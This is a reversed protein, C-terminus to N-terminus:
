GSSGVIELFEDTSEEWAEIIADDNTRDWPEIEDAAELNSVLRSVGTEFPITYEFDLDRRAKANDFVTTYQLHGELLDTRDPVAAALVDTPICVLDPEPAELAAAVRRHYQKWTMTEASTVHYAEGYARENGVAAVFARAVDDRHCPGWLSTGDGHVIVPKGRRIRDIYYTGSGLTHLLPGSDGYTSWPRIITTEFDRDSAAIFVDEVAAKNAAYETLPQADVESERTASETAPMRATPRRYVDVTSCVIYQEVSDAFVDIATRAQGPEFCIMDIVCDPDVRDAVSELDARLNRDGHHFTVGDPLSAETKGRTFCTVDHGAEELQRSIATSILGTGGLCLVNM